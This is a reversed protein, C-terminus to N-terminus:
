EKAPDAPPIPPSGVTVTTAAGPSPQTPVSVSAVGDKHGQIYGFAGTAISSALTIVAMTVNPVNPHFLAAIALVVALLLFVTAWFANPLDKM